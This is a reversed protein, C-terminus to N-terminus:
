LLLKYSRCLLLGCPLSRSCVLCGLGLACLVGLVCALPKKAGLSWARLVVAGLGLLFRGRDCAGCLASPFAWGCSVGGGCAWYFCVFAGGFFNLFVGLPGGSFALFAFLCVCLDGLFFAGFWAFCSSAGSPIPSLVCFLALSFLALLWSFCALPPPPVLGLFALAGLRLAPVGLPLPLFLGGLWAFCGRLCAFPCSSSGFRM